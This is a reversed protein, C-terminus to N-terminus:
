HDRYLSLIGARPATPDAPDFNDDAIPAVRICQGIVLYSTEVGYYPLEAIAYCTMLGDFAPPITRCGTLNDSATGYGPSINPYGSYTESAGVWILQEHELYDEEGFTQRTVLGASASRVERSIAVQGASRMTAGPYSAPLFPGVLNVWSSPLVRKPMIVVPWYFRGGAAFQSGVSRVDARARYDSATPALDYCSPSNQASAGTYIVDPLHYQNTPDISGPDEPDSHYVSTYANVMFGSGLTRMEGDIGIFRSYAGYYEGSHDVFSYTVTFSTPLSTVGFKQGVWKSPTPVSVPDGPGEVLSVEVTDLSAEAATCVITMAESAQAKDDTRICSSYGKDVMDKLLIGLAVDQRNAYNPKFVFCFQRGYLGKKSNWNRSVNTFSYSPTGRQFPGRMGDDVTSAHDIASASPLHVYQTPDFSLGRLLPAVNDDTLANKIASLKVARAKEPKDILKAMHGNNPMRLINTVPAVTSEDPTTQCRWIVERPVPLDQPILSRRHPGNLLFASAGNAATDSAPRGDAVTLPSIDSQAFGIEFSPADSGKVLTFKSCGDIALRRHNMPPAYLKFSDGSGNLCTRIANGSPTVRPSRNSYKSKAAIRIIHGLDTNMWPFLDPLIPTLIKNSPDPDFSIPGKVKLRWYSRGMPNPLVFNAAAAFNRVVPFPTREDDCIYIGKALSTALYAKDVSSGKQVLWDSTRCAKIFEDTQSTKRM